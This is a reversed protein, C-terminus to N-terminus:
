PTQDVIYIHFDNRFINYNVSDTPTFTGLVDGRGPGLYTFTTAEYPIQGSTITMSLTLWGAPDRVYSWTGLNFLNGQPDYTDIYGIRNTGWIGDTPFYLVIESIDNSYGGCGSVMIMCTLSLKNITITQTPSNTASYADDGSKTAKIQCLSGANGVTLTTSAISCTGAVVSYVTAGSGSGGSSSLSLTSGYNISNASTLNLSSQLSLAKTEIVKEAAMTSTPLSPLSQASDGDANIATIIFTYTQSSALNTITILNSSNARLFITTGNQVNRVRYLGIPADLTTTNLNLALQISQSDLGTARKISPEAPVLITRSWSVSKQHSACKRNFLLYSFEVSKSVCGVLVRTSPETTAQSSTADVRTWKALLEGSRCIDRKKLVRQEKSDPNTCTILTSPSEYAYASPTVVVFQSFILGLIM